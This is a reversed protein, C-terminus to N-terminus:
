PTLAGQQIRHMAVAFLLHAEPGTSAARGMLGLEVRGNGCDIVWALNHADDYDGREIQAALHRLMKPVDTADRDPLSVVQLTM